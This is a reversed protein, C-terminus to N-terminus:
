MLNINEDDEGDHPLWKPWEVGGHFILGWCLKEPVNQLIPGQLGPPWPETTPVPSSCSFWILKLAARNTKLYSDWCQGLMRHSMMKKQKGYIDMSQPRGGAPKMLNWGMKMEKLVDLVLHYGAQSWDLRPGEPWNAYPNVGAIQTVETWHWSPEVQFGRWSGLIDGWPAALGLFGLFGLPGSFPSCRLSSTSASGRILCSGLAKINTRDIAETKEWKIPLKLVRLELMLPWNPESSLDCLIWKELWLPNTHVHKARLIQCNTMMKRSFIHWLIPYRGYEEIADFVELCSAWRGSGKIGADKLPEVMPEHGIGPFHLQSTRKRSTAVCEHGTCKQKKKMVQKSCALVLHGVRLGFSVLWWKRLTQYTYIYIYVHTHTCTHIYIHVYPPNWLHPIGLFPHKITTTFGISSEPTAGNKWTPIEPALQPVEEPDPNWEGREPSDDRDDM